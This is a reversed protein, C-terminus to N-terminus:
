ELIFRELFANSFKREPDLRSALSAFDRRRPYASKVVDPDCMYLKGWHPRANFPALAHEVLPLVHRVAPWDNRWTFHIAATERGYSPSLWLDDAAVVRIESVLILPQIQTRIALLASMAATAWRNPILYESQLEDGASPRHDMRFHPLRDHWPGPAGGQMTCADGSFGPIPHLQERAAPAGFFTHPAEMQMETDVRTKLWVQHFSDGSWDTFLSVSYGARMIEDFSAVVRDFALNKYVVQRVRFSSALSLTLRTVVGLAGLSVIAGELPVPRIGRSVQQIEGDARVLEMAVISTALSGNSIGSGHTGTACAGAISIHPLSALNPLSFGAADLEACVDGYRAGGDVSVTRASRDIEVTGPLRALSVHDGVTDALENFSHATGIARIRRSARVADQLEPVSEPQVLRAAGFTTNGAWNRM